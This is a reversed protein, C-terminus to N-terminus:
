LRATMAVWGETESSHMGQSTWSRRRRWWQGWCWALGGGQGELWTAGWLCLVASCLMGLMCGLLQMRFAWPLPVLGAVNSAVWGSTGGITWMLLVSTQLAMAAVLLVNARLPEVFPKGQYLVLAATLLQDLSLLFVTTSEPAQHPTQGYNSWLNLPPPAIHDNPM